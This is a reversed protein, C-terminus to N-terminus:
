GCAARATTAPMLSRQMLITDVNRGFKRGVQEFVGVRRFGSREHLRISGATEGDDVIVAVMQRLGLSECARVLADILAQGVGQGHCGSRVYISTEVTRSYGLRPRYRSAYAYGIVEGGRLSVLWPLGERRLADHRRHMEALTPVQEEMTCIATQVYHGYIDRLAPVHSSAAEVIVTTTPACPMVPPIHIANMAHM